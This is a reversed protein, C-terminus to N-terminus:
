GLANSHYLHIFGLNKHVSLYYTNKKFMNNRKLGWLFVGLSCCFWGHDVESFLVDLQCLLVMTYKIEGKKLPLKIQWSDPIFNWIQIRIQLVSRLWTTNLNRILTNLLSCKPKRIWIRIHLNFIKIMKKDFVHSFKQFFTFTTPKPLVTFLNQREIDM